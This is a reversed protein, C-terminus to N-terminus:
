REVAAGDAPQTTRPARALPMAADVQALVFKLMEAIGAQEASVALVRAANRPSCNKRRRLQTTFGKQFASLMEPSPCVLMNLAAEARRYAEPPTKEEVM